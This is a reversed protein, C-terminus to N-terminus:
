TVPPYGAATAIADLEARLEAAPPYAGDRELMLAPPRHRACLETVLELVAAPVADTHTDHYIGDHEAGGAVHV